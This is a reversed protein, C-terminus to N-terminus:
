ISIGYAAIFFHISCCCPRLPVSSIFSRDGVDMTTSDATANAANKLCGVSWWKRVFPFGMTKASFRGGGICSCLHPYFAIIKTTTGVIKAFNVATHRLFMWSMKLVFVLCITRLNRGMEWSKGYLGLSGFSRDCTTTIRGRANTIPM